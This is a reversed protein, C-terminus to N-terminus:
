FLDAYESVYGDDAGKKDNNRKVWNRFTAKWDRIRDRGRMWGKSEWYDWFYEADFNPYGRETAYEKVQEVTPKQFRRINNPSPKNSSTNNDKANKPPPDSCKQPSPIDIKACLTTMFIHRSTVENRDNRNVKTTIFGLRELDKIWRSVTSNSVGYLEAFYGNTAWCYGEKNCLASIEGYLLKANATLENCYRVEAPIVAYYNPQEEM